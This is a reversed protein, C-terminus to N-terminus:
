FSLKLGVQVQRIVASDSSDSGAGTVFGFEPSTFSGNPNAFKPTNSFNIAEGRLEVTFRESARLRRFVSLDLNRFDPGRLISRGATGLRGIGPDAFAATEFWPNGRGIGKLIAPRRLLDPRNSSGPTNLVGGGTIQLPLGGMLTLIGSLQWGGLVAAPLGGNAWRKGKGFPLEYIYSQVFVQQRDSNQTARNLRFDIQQYFDVDIVKSYTYSTTLLFGQSFRRDFKAQLSHYNGQTPHWASVPARRGFQQFLPQGAAGSNLVASANIDRFAYNRISANGVYAVDFTFNGPLARQVAFNWSAVYGERLDKPFVTFSQTLDANEIIGNSPYFTAPPPPFGTVMRRNISFADVTLYQETTRVPFNYGYNFDALPQISTGFGSRIVTKEDLRLALGLRPAFHKRFQRRGLDMPTEGVGAVLVRNRRPDYNSFGGPLRPRPNRWYEYRLGIDVTLRKMAQWKDQVYFFATTQRYAPFIFPVSRAVIHPRDLLFSAYANGLGTRPAGTANLATQGERFDFRGRAGFADNQNLDDRVRRADSGWKITHSQRILTWNTVYNFNTEARQWPLSQSYGLVSNTYGSILIQPIGSTFDSINVGPIGLEDATKRGYDANYAENRYRFAGVRFEGILTPNFIATYNIATSHIKNTGTGAFNRPGGGAIDSYVPPDYVIPRQFSYRGALRHNAGLLHDLKVDFADTDKVRVTNREWNAALGPRVPAPILDNLRRAIPSIRSPPIQNAAFPTRNRGDPSGTEPDFVPFGFAGLNGARFEATPITAITVNGRRDKIGQFDGFYFTRNKRIPGGLTFGYLNYVTQPRRSAFFNRSTMHTNRHFHFASGHMDNAGSKLTVNTVAGSARGLEAEYNSTSIDVAAIAELPPILVQLLGTRHNNDVGELQLNNMLRTQGNVENSLTDSSNFFESHPRFSRRVGPVLSLLSQFNRNFGLPMNAIQRTELTRGTDARDTQLLPPAARVEVLETVAGPRVEFDARVTVNVLVEVDDRQARQFGAAEVTVRYAGAELNPFSFQGADNTATERGIGRNQDLISVKAAPVVGGSSDLVTGLLTGKVAQGSADASFWLVIPLALVPAKTVNM